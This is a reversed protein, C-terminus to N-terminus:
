DLLEEKKDGEGEDVNEEAVEFSEMEEMEEGGEGGEGGAGGAGELAGATSNGFGAKNNKSESKKKDKQGIPPLKVSLRINSFKAETFNVGMAITGRSAPLMNNVINDFVIKNNVFVKIKNHIIIISVKYWTDTKVKELKKVSLTTNNLKLYIKSKRFGHNFVVSYNDM